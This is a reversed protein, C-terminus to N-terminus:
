FNLSGIKDKGIIITVDAIGKEGSAEAPFGLYDSLKQVTFSKTKYYIVRSINQPNDATTVLIPNGGINTVLSALRSGVGSADSANIIQIGLNERYITPDTFSLTLITSKQADNLDNGLNRDYVSGSQITKAFVSLRFADIFTLGELSASFPTASKLLLSPIDKDKINENVKLAGDIPLELAKSLANKGLSKSISVVTMTKSQPNFSVLKTQTPGVFSIIFNHSGDFRSDKFVFFVKLLLSLVILGLVLLVFLGALGLNTENKNKAM